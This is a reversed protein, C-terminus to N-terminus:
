IAFQLAEPQPLPRHDAEGTGPTAGHLALHDLISCTVSTEEEIGTQHPM